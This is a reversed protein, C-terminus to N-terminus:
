FVPIRNRPVNDNGEELTLLLMFFSLATLSTSFHWMDHNDYIGLLCAGNLNKSAAATATISRREGQLFYGGFGSAVLSLIGYCVTACKIGEAPIGKNFRSHLKRLIYYCVYMLMNAMIIILLHKSVGLKQTGYFYIGLGLNIAAASMKYVTQKVRSRWNVLTGVCSNRLTARIQHVSMGHLMSGNTHIYVLLIVAIVIHTIFFITWFAIHNTFYGVVEMCLVLGFVLFVVHATHTIDPHRFQYVKLFVLVGITYMFTTDFQLSMANPCIHYCISLIGEMILSTGMAYFIGYQEPIGCQEPHMIPDRASRKSSLMLRRNRRNVVICLFVVGCTIYSINSFVHGFDQIGAFPHLCEFNFRCIDLHGSDLSHEQYFLAMQFVPLTYFLGMLGVMWMYSDSRMKLQNRFATTDYFYICMSDLMMDNQALNQRMKKVVSKDLTFVKQVFDSKQEEIGSGQQDGKNSQPIIVDLGPIVTTVARHSKCGSSPREEEQNGEDAATEDPEPSVASEEAIDESYGM